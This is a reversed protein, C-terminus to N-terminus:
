NEPKAMIEVPCKNVRERLRSSIFRIWKNKNKHSKGKITQITKNITIPNKM